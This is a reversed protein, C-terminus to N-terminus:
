VRVCYGTNHANNCWNCRICVVSHLTLRTSAENAARQLFIILQPLINQLDPGQLTLVTPLICSAPLVASQMALCGAIYASLCWQRNGVGSCSHIYLLIYM